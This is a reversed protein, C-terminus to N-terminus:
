AHIAYIRSYMYQVKPDQRSEDRMWFYDDYKVQFLRLFFYM